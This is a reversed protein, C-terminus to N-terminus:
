KNMLRLNSIGSQITTSIGGFLERAISNAKILAYIGGIYIFKNTLNGKTYDMSFLLLLVIAVLIQIFLLSFLNRFWSKFFNSTSELTLTLFAFPSFLIMIKIMIYRLSYSFVLNLLSVTLTGKILGDITFINLDNENISLNSNIENILTEFCIKKNFLDEGLGRILATVSFNLNLIQEIIFFSCNMCIGYIICKFIFQAPNEIRNYTFNSMMFKAAYYLLFGILLSNAILLIGNATQTGFLKDFYKDNLIDQNVFVLDDLIEYLSSDISSFLNKFITNITEIINTTIDTVNEM